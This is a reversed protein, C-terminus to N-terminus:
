QMQFFMTCEVTFAPSCVLTHVRICAFVGASNTRKSHVKNMKEKTKLQEFALANARCKYLNKCPDVTVITM